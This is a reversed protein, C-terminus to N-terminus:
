LESHAVHHTGESVLQVMKKVYLIWDSLPKFLMM